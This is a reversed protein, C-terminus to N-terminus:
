ISKEDKAVKKNRREPLYYYYQVRKSFNFYLIWILPYIVGVILISIEQRFYEETYIELPVIKAYVIRAITIISSAVACIINSIKIKKPTDQKRRVTIYIQYMAILVLITSQITVANTYFEMNQIKSADDIDIIRLLIQYFCLSWFFLILGGFKSYQKLKIDKISNNFLKKDKRRILFVIIAIIIILIVIIGMALSTIQNSNAYIPRAVEYFEVGNIIQLEEENRVQQDQNYYRFSVTILRGNMITYYISMDM